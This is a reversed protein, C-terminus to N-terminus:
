EENEGAFWHYFRSFTMGWSVEDHGADPTVSTIVDAKTLKKLEQSVELMQSIMNPHENAGVDFFYRQKRYSKGKMYARLNRTLGPNTFFSPSFVGLVGFVEPFFIGAYFTILGGMSSGVMLTDGASKLTRYNSDIQPKLEEAIFSIYELGKGEGQEDSDLINYENLRRLGGNDIGIIICQKDMTNMFKDVGWEGCFSTYADFLNQGDHMYIVPYRRTSEHYGTPLYIWIRRRRKLSLMPFGPDLISVNRTASTQINASM